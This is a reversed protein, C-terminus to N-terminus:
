FLPLGKVPKWNMLTLATFNSNRTRTEFLGMGGLLSWSSDFQYRGFILYMSSRQQNNKMKNILALPGFMWKETFQFGLLHRQQILLSRRGTNVLSSLEDAYDGKIKHDQEAASYHIGGLYLLSKYKLAVKAGYHDRRINTTCILELCNFNSFKEYNRQTYSKGLYFNLFSIPNLDLQVKGSNVVGATQFSASPRLYGYTLHDDIKYIPWSYGATGRMYFASPFSRYLTEASFDWGAQAKHGFLLIIMFYYITSRSIQHFFM